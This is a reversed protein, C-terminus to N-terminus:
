LCCLKEAGYRKESTSIQRWQQLFFLEFIYIKCIQACLERLKEQAKGDLLVPLGQTALFKLSALEGGVSADSFIRVPDPAESQKLGM